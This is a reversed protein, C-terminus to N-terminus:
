LGRQSIDKIKYGKFQQTSRSAIVMGKLNLKNEIAFDKLKVGNLILISGAPLTLEFLLKSKGKNSPIKGLHSLSLNKRHEKSFKMGKRARSVSEGHGKCKPKNLKRKVEESRPIGYLPNDKGYRRSAKLNALHEETFVRKKGYFKSNPGSVSEIFRIKSAEFLRSNTYRYQGKGKANNMMFFAHIMKKTKPDNKGYRNIYIKELLAHAIYHQRASLKVISNNKGFISKPFVHHKEYYGTPPM